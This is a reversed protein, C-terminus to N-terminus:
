PQKLEFHCAGCSITQQLVGTFLFTIISQNNLWYGKWAEELSPTAPILALLRDLTGELKAAISLNLENHLIEFLHTLFEGADQQTYGSFHPVVEVFMEYFTDPSLSIRKSMWLERILEGLCSTIIGNKHKILALPAKKSTKKEEQKPKESKTEEMTDSRESFSRNVADDEPPEEAKRLGLSENINLIQKESLLDYDNDEM